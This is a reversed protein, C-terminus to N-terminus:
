DSYDPQYLYKLILGYVRIGVHLYLTDTVAESFLYAPSAGLRLCSMHVATSVTVLFKPMVPLSHAMIVMFTMAPLHFMTM